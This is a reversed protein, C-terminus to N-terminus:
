GEGAAAEEAHEQRIRYRTGGEERLTEIASGSQRLRTLASRITHPLWDTAAALDGM